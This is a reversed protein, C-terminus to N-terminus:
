PNRHAKRYPRLLDAAGSYQLAKARANPSQKTSMSVNGLDFSHESAGGVFPDTHKSDHDLYRCLRRFAEQVAFPIEEDSGAFGTFRFHLNEILCWGGLATPLPDVPVWEGGVWRSISQTTFPVLPPLWEGPGEVVFEVPREGWRYAIYSEIREWAANRLSKSYQSTGNVHPRAEVYGESVDHIIIM